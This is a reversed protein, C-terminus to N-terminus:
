FSPFWTPCLIPSLREKQNPGLQILLKILLNGLNNERSELDSFGLPSGPAQRFFQPPGDQIVQETFIAGMRDQM